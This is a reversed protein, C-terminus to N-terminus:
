KLCFFVYSLLDYIGVPSVRDPVRDTSETERSIKQILFPVIELAYFSDSGKLFFIDIQPVKEVSAFPM